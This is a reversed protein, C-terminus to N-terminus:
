ALQKTVRRSALSVIAIAMGVLVVTPVWLEQLGLGKLFIGRVIPIFYTLPFVYSLWRIGPPISALPFIWGSLLVQPLLILIALQMAQQQNQSVTSILLGIGLTAILFLASVLLLFVINGRLPVAFLALGAGVIIAMDVFAIVLYPAMKGLILELRTIPTVMLQELTGRERERVIGLSTIVIGIFAMILGLLAPVMFDASRLNPNYLVDISSHTSAGGSQLAELNRLATQAVLLNSGDVLVQQARGDAGVVIAVVVKGRRLDARAAQADVAVASRVSFASGARALAARLALSDRGALEVRVYKVDFSAAYGFVLLWLLPIAVILALTRRDRRLEIFEKRVLAVLRHRDLIV